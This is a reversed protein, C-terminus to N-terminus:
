RCARSLFDGGDVDNDGGVMYAMYVKSNQDDDEGDDDDDRQHQEPLLAVYSMQVPCGARLSLM